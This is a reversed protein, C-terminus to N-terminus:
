QAKWIKIEIEPDKSMCTGYAYILYCSSDWEPLASPCAVYYNSELYDPSSEWDGQIFIFQSASTPNPVLSEIIEGAVTFGPYQSRDFQYVLRTNGNTGFKCDGAFYFSADDISETPTGSSLDFGKNGAGTPSKLKLTPSGSFALPQLSLTSVPLSSSSSPAVSSSSPIICRDTDRTVTRKEQAKPKGNMFATVHVECPEGCCEEGNFRASEAGTMDITYSGDNPGGLTKDLIERGKLLIQVRSLISDLHNAIAAGTIDLFEHSLGRPTVALNEITVTGDEAASPPAIHSSSSPNPGPNPNDGTPSGGCAILTVLGLFVGLSCLISFRRFM